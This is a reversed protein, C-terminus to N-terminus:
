IVVRWPENGLFWPFVIGQPLWIKKHDSTFGWSDPKEWTTAAHYGIRAARITDEHLGRQDLYAIAKAGTSTWLTHEGAESFSRAKVQWALSPASSLPPPPLTRKLRIRPSEGLPGGLRGCAESYSLGERDRLYQIADGQRDCQRCWYGPKDANPWVRFRDRGGCWPCPGAYEGGHTGAVKRLTTDRSLLDLLTM